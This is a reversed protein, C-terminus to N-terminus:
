KEALTEALRQNGYFHFYKVGSNDNRWDDQAITHFARNAAGPKSEKFRINDVLAVFQDYGYTQNFRRDGNIDWNKEGFADGGLSFYSRSPLIEHASKFFKILAKLTDDKVIMEPIGFEGTELVNIAKPAGLWPAAITILKDVNHAGNPNDLIYRRALLGGMSHTLINVKGDPYFRKVCDMYSRLAASTDANSQRWDYAFIFLNPNRNPDESKQSLDCGASTRRNPDGNVQYERYGNQVLRQILTGYVDSETVTM